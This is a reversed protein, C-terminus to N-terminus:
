HIHENNESTIGNLIQKGKSTSPKFTNENEVVIEGKQCENDSWYSYLHDM